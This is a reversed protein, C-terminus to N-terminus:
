TGRVENKRDHVKAFDSRIPRDVFISPGESM